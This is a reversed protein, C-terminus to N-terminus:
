HLLRPGHQVPRGPRSGTRVLRAHWRLALRMQWTWHTELHRRVSARTGADFPGDCIPCYGGLLVADPLGCVKDV